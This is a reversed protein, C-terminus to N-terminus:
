LKKWLNHNYATRCIPRTTVIPTSLCFPRHLDDM